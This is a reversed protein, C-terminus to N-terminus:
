AEGRLKLGHATLKERVENLSTVGFNKCELLDDPTRRLLEGVTTLGLRVMCKRARVSLSLDSIPRDMLAREDASMSDPSYLPEEERKQHAFQGLELGKSHLMERIEILSTEGFNKSQLLEQETTETLDGLTMIGMKQLCNRSRVSLEYDTVPVSLVQSLRDQQRRAEEDYFMDRSGDADRFFLRARPHAPYADLIRQYCGKAREYQELDEYLIGLNLLTGVHTPFQQAAREYLERAYDDNGSRDNQLALGFLAGAHSARSAVARELLAVVEEPNGSLAQVTMSRQYLYEATQEVAGSLDDLLKLAATADGAYRKAEAKALAIIDKDYGAKGASEYATFAEEYRDLALYAKGLYFHTLAGGDAKTLVEIADRYRGLLYQCVGLKASTAPSRGPQSELEQVADRLDGYRAYNAAIAATIEDIERPGFAATSVISQRIDLDLGISM